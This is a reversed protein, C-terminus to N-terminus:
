CLIWINPLMFHRGYHGLHRLCQLLGKNCELNEPSQQLTLEWCSQASTWQGNSEHERIQHELSPHLILSSIGAMGDPEDINAYIEHIREYCLQLDRSQAKRERLAIVHREFSMVSRAYAKCEFAAKAVLNQDISSVVSDVRLLQEDTDHRARRTEQRKSGPEQRTLRAWENIHDMLM